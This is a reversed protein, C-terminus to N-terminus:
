GRRSKKVAIKVESNNNKRPKFHLRSDNNQDQNQSKRKEYERQKQEKRRVYAKIKSLYAKKEKLAIAFNEQHEESIEEDQNFDIDYRYGGKAANRLYRESNCHISFAKRLQKKGIGAGTEQSRRLFDQKSNIKLPKHKKIVEFSYLWDWTEQFIKEAVPTKKVYKRKNINEDKNKIEGM